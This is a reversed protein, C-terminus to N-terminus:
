EDLYARGAKFSIVVPIGGEGKRIYARGGDIWCSNDPSTKMHHRYHSYIVDGNEAKLGDLKVEEIWSANTIMLQWAHDPTVAAKPQYYLGFYHSGEYPEEQYFVSVVNNSGAPHEVDCVWTAKKQEEIIGINADSFNIAERILNM